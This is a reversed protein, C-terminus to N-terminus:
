ITGVTQPGGTERTLGRGPDRTEGTELLAVGAVATTITESHGRDEMDVLGSTEATRAQRPARRRGTDETRRDDEGAAGRAGRETGRTITGSTWAQGGSLEYRPGASVPEKTSVFRKM